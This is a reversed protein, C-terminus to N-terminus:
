DIAPVTESYPAFEIPPVQLARGNITVGDITLRYQADVNCTQDFSFTVLYAPRSFHRSADAFSLWSGDVITGQPMDLFTRSQVQAKATTSRGEAQLTGTTRDVELGDVKSGILMTFILKGNNRAVERTRGRECPIPFALGPNSASASSGITPTTMCFGVVGDVSFAIESRTSDSIQGSCVLGSFGPLTEPYHPRVSVVRDGVVDQPSLYTVPKCGQISMALTLVWMSGLLRLVPSANPVIMASPM